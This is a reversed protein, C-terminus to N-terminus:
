KQMMLDQHLGAIIGRRITSEGGHTTAEFSRPKLSLRRAIDDKCIVIKTKWEWFTIVLLLLKYWYKQLTEIVCICNWVRCDCLFKYLEIFSLDADHFSHMFRMKTAYKGSTDATDMDENSGYSNPEHSSIKRGGLQGFDMTLLESMNSIGADAHENGSSKLKKNNSKNNNNKSNNNNPTGNGRTKSKNDWKDLKNKGTNTNTNTINISVKVGDSGNPTRGLSLLRSEIYQSKMLVSYGKSRAVDKSIEMEIFHDIDRSQKRTIGDSLNNLVNETEQGHGSLVSISKAKHSGELVPVGVGGQKRTTNNASSVNGSVHSNPNSDNGTAGAATKGSFNINGTSNSGIDKIDLLNSRNSQKSRNKRRQEQEFAFTAAGRLEISMEDDSDNSMVSASAIGINVISNGFVNRMSSQIKNELTDRATRERKVTLHDEISHHQHYVLVKFAQDIAEEKTRKIKQVTRIIHQNCNNYIVALVAMLSYISLVNYIFFYIAAFQSDFYSEMMIDPLNSTTHLILLNYVSEGITHFNENSGVADSAYFLTLAGFGFLLLFLTILSAVECLSLLGSVISRPLKKLHCSKYILYFSRGVGWLNFFNLFADSYDAENFGLLIITIIM